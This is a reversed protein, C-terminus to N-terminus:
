SATKRQPATQGVAVMQTFVNRAIDVDFEEPAARAALAADARKAADGSLKPAEGAVATMESMEGNCHLVVDCGAALAARCREAITGSLANM